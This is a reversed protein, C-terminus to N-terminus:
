GPATSRSATGPRVAAGPGRGRRAAARHRVREGPGDRRSPGRAVVAVERAQRGHDRDVLLRRGHRDADHPADHLTRDLARGIAHRSGDRRLDGAALAQDLRFPRQAVHVQRRGFDIELGEGRRRESACRESIKSSSNKRWSPRASRRLARPCSGPVAKGSSPCRPRASRSRRGNRRVPACSRATASIVASRARGCGM